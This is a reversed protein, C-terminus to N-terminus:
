FGGSNNDRIVVNTEYALLRARALFYGASVVVLATIALNTAPGTVPLSAAATQIQVVTAQPLNINIANAYVNTMVHDFRGTGAVQPTNPITSKVTVAVRVTATEGPKIDVAPWIAANDSTLRGGYLDSVDAYDLIDSLSDQFM